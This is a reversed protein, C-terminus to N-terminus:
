KGPEKGLLQRLVMVEGEWKAAKLRLEDREKTMEELRSELDSMQDMKKQRLRRAALKNRHRKEQLRGEDSDQSSPSVSRASEVAAKKQPVPSSYQSEPLGFATTYDPSPTYQQPGRVGLLQDANPSFSSYYARTELSLIAETNNDFGRQSSSVSMPVASPVHLTNSDINNNSMFGNMSFEVTSFTPEPPFQELSFAIKELLAPDMSLIEPSLSTQSLDLEVSSTSPTFDSWTAAFVTSQPIAGSPTVTSVSPEWDSLMQIPSHEIPPRSSRTEAPMITTVVTPALSSNYPDSVFDYQKLVESPSSYYSKLFITHSIFALYSKLM